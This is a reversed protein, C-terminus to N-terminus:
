AGSRGGRRSELEDTLRDLDRRTARQRGAILLLYAGLCLWIVLYAAFLYSM